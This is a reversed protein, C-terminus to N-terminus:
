QSSAMSSLSFDQRGRATHYLLYESCCQGLCRNLEFGCCIHKRFVGCPHLWHPTCPAQPRQLYGQSCQRSFSSGPHLPLLVLTLVAKVIRVCFHQKEPLPAEGGSRLFEQRVSLPLELSWLIRLCRQPCANSPAVTVCQDSNVRGGLVMWSM